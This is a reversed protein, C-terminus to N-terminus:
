KTFFGPDCALENDDAGGGDEGNRKAELKKMDATITSVQLHVM